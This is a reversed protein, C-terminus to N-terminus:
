LSLERENVAIYAPDRVTTYFEHSAVTLEEEKDLKHRSEKGRSGYTVERELEDVTMLDTNFIGLSEAKQIMVLDM